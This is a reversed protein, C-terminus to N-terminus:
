YQTFVCQMGAFHVIQFSFKEPGWEPACAVKPLAAGCQFRSFRSLVNFRSLALVPHIWGMENFIEIIHLKTSTMKFKAHMLM